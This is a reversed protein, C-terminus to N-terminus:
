TELRLLGPIEVPFETADFDFTDLRCSGGRRDTLQPHAPPETEYECIRWYGPLLGEASMGVKLSVSATEIISHFKTGPEGGALPTTDVKGLRVEVGEIRLNQMATAKMKKEPDQKLHHDV